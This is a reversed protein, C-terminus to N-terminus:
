HLMKCTCANIQVRRPWLRLEPVLKCTHQQMARVQQAGTTNNTQNLNVNHILDACHLVHLDLPDTLLDLGHGLGLNGGLTALDVANKAYGGVSSSEILMIRHM